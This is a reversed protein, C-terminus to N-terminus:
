IDLYGDRSSISHHLEIHTWIFIQFHFIWIYGIISHATCRWDSICLRRKQGGIRAAETRLFVQKKHNTLVHMSNYRLTCLIQKMYSKTLYTRSINTLVFFQFCFSDRFFNSSKRGKRHSTVSTSTTHALRFCESKTFTVHSFKLLEMWKWTKM